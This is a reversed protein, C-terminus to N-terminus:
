GGKLKARYITKCQPCTVESGPTVPPLDVNCKPCKLVVPQPQSKLPAPASEVEGGAEEAASAVGEGIKRLAQGFMKARRRGELLEARLKLMELDLKKMEIEHQQRMQELKIQVDPPLSGGGGFLEKFRNFKKEDELIEDWVSSRSGVAKAVEDLKDIIRQETLTKALGVLEKMVAGTGEGEGRKGAIKEALDYMGKNLDIVEKATIGQPSQGRAQSALFMFMPLYPNSSTLASLTALAEPNMKSFFENAQEPKVGAKILSAVLAGTAVAQSDPNSALPASARLKELEQRHKEAEAQMRLLEREMKLRRMERRKERLEEDELDEEELDGRVKM